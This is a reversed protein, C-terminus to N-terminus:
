AFVAAPSGATQRVREAIEALRGVNVPRVRPDSSPRSVTYVYVAKPQIRAVTELWHRFAEGASNDVPSSIFLSQLIVPPLAALGRVMGDWNMQTVPHNVRSFTEADGADLKMYREDLDSLVRRVEPLHVRTSDSLIALPAEPCYRDRLFKVGRVLADLEPHLTPEGNGSFTLADIRPKSSFRTSFDREIEELIEEAPRLKVKRMEPLSTWGYQCYICNSLCFKVETPLINIGLSHGFRRSAIPGYVVSSQLPITM